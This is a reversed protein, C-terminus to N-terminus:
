GKTEGRACLVSSHLRAVLIHLLKGTHTGDCANGSTWNNFVAGVLGAKFYAACNAAAMNASICLTSSLVFALRLNHGVRQQVLPSQM